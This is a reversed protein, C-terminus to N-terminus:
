AELHEWFGDRNSVFDERVTYTIHLGQTSVPKILISFLVPRLPPLASNGICKLYNTLTVSLPTTRNIFGMKM